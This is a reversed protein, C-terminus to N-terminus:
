RRGGFTFIQTKMRRSHDAVIASMQSADPFYFRNRNELNKGRDDPICGRGWPAKVQSQLHPAEGGCGPFLARPVLNYSLMVPFVLFYNVSSLLSCLVFTYSHPPPPHWTKKKIQSPLTKHKILFLLHVPFKPPFM